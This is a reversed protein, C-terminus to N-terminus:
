EETKVIADPTIAEQNHTASDNYQNGNVLSANEGEFTQDIDNTETTSITETAELTKIYDIWATREKDLGRLFEARMLEMDALLTDRTRTTDLLIGVTTMVFVSCALIFALWSRFNEKKKDELLQVVIKNLAISQNLADSENKIENVQPIKDM